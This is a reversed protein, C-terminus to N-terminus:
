RANADKPSPEEWFWSEPLTQTGRWARRSGM